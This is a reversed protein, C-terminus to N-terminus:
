ISATQYMNGPYLLEVIYDIQVKINHGFNNAQDLHSGWIYRFEALEAPSAIFEAVQAERDRIDKVNWYKKASYHCVLDPKQKFFVPKAQINVGSGGLYPGLSLWEKWKLVGSSQATMPNLGVFTEETCAVASMIRSNDFSAGSTTDQNYLWVSMKSGLVRYSKYLGGWLTVGVCSIAANSGFPLYVSNALFVLEQTSSTSAAVPFETIARMLVKRTRPFALGRFISRNLGGISREIRPGSIRRKRFSRRKFSRKKSFKRRKFSRNSKRSFKRKM